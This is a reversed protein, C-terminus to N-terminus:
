IFLSKYVYWLAIIALIISLIAGTASGTIRSEKRLISDINSIIKEIEIESAIAIEPWITSKIEERKLSTLMSLDIDVYSTVAAIPERKQLPTRRNKIANLQKMVPLIKAMFVFFTSFFLVSLVGFFYVRSGVDRYITIQEEDPAIENHASLLEGLANPDVKFYTLVDILLAAIAILPAAIAIIKYLNL